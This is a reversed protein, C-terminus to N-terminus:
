RRELHFIQHPLSVYLNYACVCVYVCVYTSSVSLFYFFPPAVFLFFPCRDINNMGANGASFEANSSVVTVNIDASINRETTDSHKM